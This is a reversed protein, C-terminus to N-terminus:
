FILERKTGADNGKLFANLEPLGPLTLTEKPENLPNHSNICEESLINVLNNAGFISSLENENFSSFGASSNQQRPVPESSIFSTQM